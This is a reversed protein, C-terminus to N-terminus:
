LDNLFARIAQSRHSYRNKEATTMQAFTRQEGEPMFVPDYGFGNSGFPRVSITGKVEGFFTREMGNGVYALVTVFRARRESRGNLNKLLLEMNELDSAGAGAYRASRVGPAGDLAEVQLGSDDALCPLGCAKHANRAKLLANGAFTDATEEWGGTIGADALTLMSFHESLVARMEAVKGPNTTCLVLPKMTTLSRVNSVTRLM